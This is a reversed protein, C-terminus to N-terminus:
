LSHQQQTMTPSHAKTTSPPKPAFAAGGISPRPFIRPALNAPRLLELLPLIKDLVFQREDDSWDAAEAEVFAAFRAARREPSSLRSRRATMGFEALLQRAQDLTLGPHVRGQAILDKTLQLGLRALCHLTNWAWPLHVSIQDDATRFADGINVLMNAKTKSFLEKTKCLREWEGYALSRRALRVTRALQLVSAPGRALLRRIESTWGALSRREPAAAACRFFPGRERAREGESPSLPSDGVANRRHCARSAPEGM